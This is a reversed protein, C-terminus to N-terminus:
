LEHSQEDVKTSLTVIIGNLETMKAVIANINQNIAGLQDNLSSIDSRMSQQTADLAALKQTVQPDVVPPSVAVSPATVQPQVVPASVPVLSPIDAKVAVKKTSSMSGVIKYLLMALIVAGLVIAANRKINNTDKKEIKTGDLVDNTDATTVTEDGIDSSDIANLDDFQYEDNFQDKDAM